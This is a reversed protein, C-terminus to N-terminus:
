KFFSRYITRLNRIHQNHSFRQSFEEAAPYVKEKLVDFSKLKELIEGAIQNKNVLFSSHNKFIEKMSPIDTALVPTGSLISEVVVNGFSEQDSLFLLLDGKQYVSEINKIFGHFTILQQMSHLKSYAILEEKLPGDGYIHFHTGPFKSHIEIAVDIWTFLNKGEALRGCYFIHEPFKQTGKRLSFRKTNIPNYLTKIIPKNSIQNKFVQRSYYSNATFLVNRRIGIKWLPKYIVKQLNSKWYNTGHISYLVKKKVLTTLFYVIPGGNFIHILTKKQKLLHLIFLVYSLINNKKGYRVKINFETFVSDKHRNPNFVFAEFLFENELAKIIEPLLVEIGGPSDQRVVFLIAKKKINM